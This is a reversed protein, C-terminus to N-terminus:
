ARARRRRGAADPPPTPSRPPRDRAGPTPPVAPWCGPPPNRGATPRRADPRRCWRRRPRWRRCCYRMTAPGPCWPSVGAVASALPITWAVGTTHVAPASWLGRVSCIVRRVVRWRLVLSEILSVCGYLGLAMAMLTFLAVFMLPTDFLGRALNVLFGLGRDSSVFESVVAGIVSLTAGVKLGGFLVPLAAPLELYRVVQAPTAELSRLLERLEVDVSRVGVVTNVLVPFFLTLACVLVKSLSGPGFWIVLLPAIAVIPVAQTSVLFPSLLKEALPSQYLLYGLVLALLTGIVLGLAVELLTFSTHRWWQGSSFSQIFKAAVAAPSPLIFEPLKLLLVLLQWLSLALVLTILSIFAGQKHRRQQSSLFNHPLLPKKM